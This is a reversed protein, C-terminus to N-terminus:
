VQDKTQMDNAPNLRQLEAKAADTLGSAKWRDYHDHIHQISALWNAIAKKVPEPIGDLEPIASLVSSVPMFLADFKENYRDDPILVGVACMAGGDGRYACHGNDDVMSRTKMALLHKEVKPFLASKIAHIEDQANM